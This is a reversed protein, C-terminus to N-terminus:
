TLEREREREKEKEKEGRRREKEREGKKERGCCLEGVEGPVPDDCIYHFAAM